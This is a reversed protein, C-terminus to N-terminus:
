LNNRILNIQSTIKTGKITVVPQLTFKPWAAIFEQFANGFEELEKREEEEIIKKAEIASPKKSM